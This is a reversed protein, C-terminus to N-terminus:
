NRIEDPGTPSKIGLEVQKKTWYQIREKVFNLHKRQETESFGKTAMRKIYQEELPEVAKQWRKLEDPSFRIIENQKSLTYKLGEENGDDWVKGSRDIYEASLDTIVEQVDQPLKNWTAKNMVVYFPYVSSLVWIDLTYKCVEAFRFSRLGEPSTMTGDIVGRSIGDYIESMPMDRPTGGLISLTESVAGPTRLTLGKLDELARIPKTSHIGGNQSNHFYLVHTDDWEKPRYENYFDNAVKTAVWASPYGLPLTLVETNIFRGRSYEAHSLGIDVIGKVVGDYMRPATLLSGAPYYTVKVKGNTRKELDKCFEKSLESIGHGPPLFNAYKLAITDASLVAKPSLSAFICLAALILSSYRFITKM